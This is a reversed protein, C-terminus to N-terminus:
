GEDQKKDPLGYKQRHLLDKGVVALADKIGRKLEVSAVVFEDTFKDDDNLTFDKVTVQVTQMAHISVRQRGDDDVWRKGAFIDVWLDSM